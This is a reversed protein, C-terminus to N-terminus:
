LFAGGGMMGGGVGGGFGGGVGGGMGGGTGFGSQTYIYRGGILAAPDGSLGEATPYELIVRENAQPYGQAVLFEVVKRRRAENLKRTAKFSVVEEDEPEVPEVVVPWNPPVCDLMQRIAALHRRGAPGPEARELYWEHKYVVLKEAQARNQQGVNIRNLFSGCIPPIAGKPIDSCNDVNWWRNGTMGCGTMGGTLLLAVVVLAWPCRSSAHRPRRMPNDEAIPLM